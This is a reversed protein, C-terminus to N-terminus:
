DLDKELDKRVLELDERGIDGLDVIEEEEEKKELKMDPFEIFIIVVTFILSYGITIILAIWLNDLHYQEIKLISLIFTGFIGSISGTANLLSTFLTISTAELNQPIVDCWIALLPMLNLEAILTGFGSGLFVFHKNNMGIKEIWGLIVFLFLLSSFWSIINTSIFLKKPNVKILYYYYALMALTYCIQAFTDINALDITTFKLTDNLYFTLGSSIDPAINLFVVFLLLLFLKKTFIVDIILKFEKKFGQSERNSIKFDKDNYFITIILFIIPFFSTIMFAFQNPHNKIVIGGFFTGFIGALSRFGYYIPMDNSKYDKDGKENEKKTTIVLMLEGIINEICRVFSMFFLVIYFSFEKTNTYAIICYLIIDLIFTVYLIYKIKKIYKLSKDISYGLLPKILWPIDTITSLLQIKAPAIKLDNKQYMFIALGSLNTLGHFISISIVLVKTSILSNSYTTKPKPAIIQNYKHTKTTLEM